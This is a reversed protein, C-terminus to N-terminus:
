INIIKNFFKEVDNLELNIPEKKTEINCQYHINKIIIRDNQNCKKYLDNAAHFIIIKNELNNIWEKSIADLDKISM